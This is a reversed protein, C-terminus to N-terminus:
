CTVRCHVATTILVEDPFRGCDHISYQKMTIFRKADWHWSDKGSGGGGGGRGRSHGTLQRAGGCGLAVSAAERVVDPRESTAYGGHLQTRCFKETGGERTLKRPSHLDSTLGVYVCPPASLSGGRGGVGVWWCQSPAQRSQKM